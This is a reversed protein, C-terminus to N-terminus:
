IIVFANDKKMQRINDKSILLIEEVFSKDYLPEKSLAVKFSAPKMTNEQLGIMLGVITKIRKMPVFFNLMVVESESHYNEFIFNIVNDHNKMYGHYICECEDLKKIDELKYYLTAKINNSIKDPLIHIVSSHIKKSYIHYLYLYQSDGFPSKYKKPMDKKCSYDLLMSIDIELASSIEFLTLVDISIKGSEYKSLTSPSKNILKALENLSLKKAKRYLKVRDGIHVLIENEM